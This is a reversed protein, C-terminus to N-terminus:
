RNYAQASKKHKFLTKQLLAKNLETTPSHIVFRVNTRTEQLTTAMNLPVLLFLRKLYVSV